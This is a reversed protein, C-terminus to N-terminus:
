LTYMWLVDDGRPPFSKSRIFSFFDKPTHLLNWDFPFSDLHSSPPSARVQIVKRGSLFCGFYFDICGSVWFDIASCFSTWVELTHPFGAVHSLTDSSRGPTAFLPLFLSAPLEERFFFFNLLCFDLFVSLGFALPFRSWILRAV